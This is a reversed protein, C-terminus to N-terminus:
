SCTPISCHLNTNFRTDSICTINSISSCHAVVTNLSYAIFSSNQDDQFSERGGKGELCHLNIKRDRLSYLGCCRCLMLNCPLPVPILSNVSPAFSISYTSILYQHKFMPFFWKKFTDWSSKNGIQLRLDTDSFNHVDMFAFCFLLLVM